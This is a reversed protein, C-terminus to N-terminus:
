GAQATRPPRFRLHEQDHSRSRNLQYVRAVEGMIEIMTAISLLADSGLRYAAFVRRSPAIGALPRAEVGPHLEDLALAPILAVGVGVAALAQVVDYDGAEFVVRPDFGAHQCARLTFPHTSSSPIEVIWSEEVLQELRVESQSCLPHVAPLAVYMPDNFLLIRELGDM